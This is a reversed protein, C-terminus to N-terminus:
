AATVNNSTSMTISSTGDDGAPIEGLEELFAQVRGSAWMLCRPYSTHMTATTPPSASLVAISAIFIVGAICRM